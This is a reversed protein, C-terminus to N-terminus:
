LRFFLRGAGPGRRASLRLPLQTGSSRASIQCTEHESFLPSFRELWIRDTASPPQLHLLHPIVATQEVYDQETEGPLGWLLNWQTDIDYYRAWRLLNVNQAARVGKRMLALVHSSLSEIGPQIRTVGAQALLRLQERSLNSKVEFFFQYGADSEVLEPFLQKFYTMDLINDVSQFHCSRYRRAQQALEDLVRQPSKSRFRMITGNLGCFTCHHKAGWWCGRATEIPIEYTATERRCSALIRRTSSTSMTIQFRCTM